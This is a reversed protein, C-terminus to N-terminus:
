GRRGNRAYTRGAATLVTGGTATLTNRQNDLWVLHERLAPIEHRTIEKDNIKTTRASALASLAAKYIVIDTEIEALTFISM